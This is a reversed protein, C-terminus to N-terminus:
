VKVSIIKRIVLIGLIMMVIGFYLMHLGKPDTLLISEYKRNVASLVGFMVFPMICLIWGTIRGQATYIRLQGRLRARERMVAATKDLIQALNGGTEKQLLIATTLFRVDDLPVREVLNLMADRMTLGLAQEEHLARFESAVPEGLEMGVMELVATTAHGARLGRSMLDVAEPLLDGFRRYRISRAIYLYIYPSLSLVVAITASLLVNSVFLSALWWGFPIALLSIFFVSGVEWKKGAQKILRLLERSGPLDKILDNVQPNSSFAQDKVITSGHDDARSADIGALQQQVAAETQTPRLFYVLVGFSLVLVVVFLIIAAM